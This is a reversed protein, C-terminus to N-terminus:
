CGLADKCIKTIYDYSSSWEEIIRILSKLMKIPHIGERMYCAMSYDCSNIVQKLEDLIKSRNELAFDKIISDIAICEEAQVM